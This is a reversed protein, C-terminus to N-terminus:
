VAQHCLCYPTFLKGLTTVCCRRPRAEFGRSSSRLDSERGSLWRAMIQNCNEWVCLNPHFRSIVPNRLFSANLIIQSCLDRNEISIIDNYRPFSYLRCFIHVYNVPLSVSFRIYPSEIQVLEPIKLSRSCGYRVMNDLKSRKPSRQAFTSSSVDVSDAASIYSRIQLSWGDIYHRTYVGQIPM